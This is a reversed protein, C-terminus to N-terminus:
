IKFVQTTSSIGDFVCTNDVPIYQKTIVKIIEQAVMGGTFASINHLEGGKARAVEQVAQLIREDENANEIIKSIESLIADQSTTDVKESAKLALYIPMLSPSLTFEANLETDGIANSL